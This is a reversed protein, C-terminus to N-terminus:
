FITKIVKEAGRILDEVEDRTPEREKSHVCLNRIDGLRQIFRWGPVDFVGATKLADNLDSITSDKKRITLSHAVAVQGLHREIVVGAVAGSARLHSKKLLENAVSLENDFIEAQLVAKINVLISDIRALASELIEIQLRFKQVFVGFSSFIEQGMRTLTIGAFYDSITYTTASIDKRKEIRYYEQFELYREPLLQRVVPLSRTYWKQYRSNTPDPEETLNQINKDKLLKSKGRRALEKVAEIKYKHNSIDTGEKILEELEQRILENTTAL